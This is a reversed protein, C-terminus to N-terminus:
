SIRLSTIGVVNEVRRLQHWAGSTSIGLEKAAEELTYHQLHVKTFVDQAQQPMGDLSQRIIDLTQDRVLSAEPTNTLESTGIDSPVADGEAMRGAYNDM